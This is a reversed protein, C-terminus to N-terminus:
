SVGGNYLPLTVTFATNGDGDMFSIVGSTVTTTTVTANYIGNEMGNLKNATITEGNAWNHKTYSM